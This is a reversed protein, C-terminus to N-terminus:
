ARAQTQPQQDARGGAEKASSERWRGRGSGVERLAPGESRAGWALPKTGADRARGGGWRAAAKGTSGAGSGATSCCWSTPRSPPVPRCPPPVWPWRWPSPCCGCSSRWPAPPTSAPRHSRRRGPGALLRAALPPLGRHTSAPVGTGGRGAGQGRALATLSRESERRGARGGERRGWRKGGLRSVPVWAVPGPFPSAAPLPLKHGLSEACRGGEQLGCSRVEFFRGPRFAVFCQGFHPSLGYQAGCYSGWCVQRQM